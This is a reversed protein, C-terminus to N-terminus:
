STLHFLEVLRSPPPDENFDGVAYLQPLSIQLPLLLLGYRFLFMDAECAHHLIFATSAVILVLITGLQRLLLVNSGCADHHIIARM